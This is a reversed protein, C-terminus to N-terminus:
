EYRGHQRLIEYLCVAAACSVNISDALGLMPLKIMEDAEKEWPLSLGKGESGVVLAVKSSYQPQFYLKTSHPSAAVLQIERIRAWRILEPTSMVLTPTHFFSGMSARIVQPNFIDVKSDTLILAQAGVADSLRLLAGLNGPKEVAEAAVLRCTRSKKLAQDLSSVEIQIQRVRALYGDCSERFSIKEFLSDTLVILEKYPEFSKLTAAFLEEKLASESVYLQLIGEPPAITFGGKRGSLALRLIERKGEVLYHGIKRRNKGERLALLEKIRPNQASTIRLMFGYYCFKFFSVKEAVYRAKM